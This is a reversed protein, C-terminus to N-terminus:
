FTILNFAVGSDAWQPMIDKIAKGGFVDAIMRAILKGSKGLDSYISMAAGWDEMVDKEGLGVLPKTANKEVARAFPEQVGMQDNPSLFLDVQSDLEKIYGEALRAMRQHGMESKVFTVPKFHFTLDKFEALKLAEQLWGIYSHSQPMDAYIFGINKAAPM